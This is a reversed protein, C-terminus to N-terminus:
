KLLSRKINAIKGKILSTWFNMAIALRPENIYIKSEDQCTEAVVGPLICCFEYRIKELIMKKAKVKAIESIRMGALDDYGM